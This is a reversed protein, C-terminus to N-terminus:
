LIKGVFVNKKVRNAIFLASIGFKLLVLTFSRTKLLNFSEYSAARASKRTSSDSVVPEIAPTTQAAVTPQSPGARNTLFVKRSPSETASRRDVPSKSLRPQDPVVQQARALENALTLLPNIPSASTPAGTVHRSDGRRRETDSHDTGRDRLNRRLDPAPQKPYDPVDRLIYRKPGTSGKAKKRGPM